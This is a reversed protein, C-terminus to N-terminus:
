KDENPSGLETFDITFGDFKFSTFTGIETIRLSIRYGRTGKPFFLKQEHKNIYGLQYVTDDNDLRYGLQFGSPNSNITISNFQKLFDPKGLDFSKTEAIAEINHNDDSYSDDFYFIESDASGFSMRPIGDITSMCFTTPTDATSHLTYKNNILDVIIMARDVNNNTLTGVYFYYYRGDVGGCYSEYDISTIDNMIDQINETIKQLSAGDFSWIAEDNYFYLIDRFQVVSKPSPTGLNAIKRLTTGDYAWMSYKKLIILRNGLTGIYTIEDGDDQGVEFFNTPTWNVSTGVPLESYEVRSQGHNTNAIFIRENYVAIYKGKPAGTVNFTTSWTTGDFTRTADNNSVMFCYDLFTVFNVTSDMTLNQTQPDWGVTTDNYVYTDAGTVAGNVVAIHYITGDMKKYNYLTLTKRM